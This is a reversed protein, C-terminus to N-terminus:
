DSSTPTRGQVLHKVAEVPWLLRRSPLKTPRVGHYSGTQSYRKRISQSDVALIAALEDTSVHERNVPVPMPGRQAATENKKSVMASLAKGDSMQGALASQIASITEVAQAAYEAVALPILDLQGSRPKNSAVDFFLRMWDTEINMDQCWAIFAYPSLEIPTLEGKEEDDECRLQWQNLIWFACHFRDNAANAFQRGDLGAGGVPIETCGRPPHIGSLLLAGEVPTWSPRDLYDTLVAYLQRAATIREQPSTQDTM